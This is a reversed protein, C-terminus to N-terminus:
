NRYCPIISLPYGALQIRNYKRRVIIGAAEAGPLYENKYTGRGFTGPHTRHIREAVDDCKPQREGNDIFEHMVEVLPVYNGHPCWETTGVLQVYQMRRFQVIELLNEQEAGDVYEELGGYAFHLKDLEIELDSMIIQYQGESAKRQLILVLPQFRIDPAARQTANQSMNGGQEPSNVPGATITEPEIDSQGEWPPSPEVSDAVSKPSSVTSGEDSNSMKDAYISPETAMISRGGDVTARERSRVMLYGQGLKEAVGLPSTGLSADQDHLGERVVLAAPSFIMAEGTKLNIVKQPMPHLTLYQSMHFMEVKSCWQTDEVSIHEQLHDLWKKSSVRHVIIFSCLDLFSSPVM